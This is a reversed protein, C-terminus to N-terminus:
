HHSSTNKPLVYFIDTILAFSSVHLQFPQKAQPINAYLQTSSGGDFNMADVCDLNNHLFHALDITEVPYHETALLIIEGKQNIGIATREDKGPKLSIIKGHNILRPGSQIALTIASSPQYDKESVIFPQNNKLYFIPWWTIKRLPNRVKSDQIRLGLLTWFPTFFGGNVALIAHHDQALWQVTSAPLLGDKAFALKLTNQELNIKFIHISQNTSQSYHGCDVNKYNLGKTLTHWSTIQCRSVIDAHASACVFFLFLYLFRKMTRM